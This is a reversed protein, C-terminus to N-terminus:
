AGLLLLTRIVPHVQNELIGVWRKAKDKDFPESHNYALWNNGRRDADLIYAMRGPNGWCFQIGEAKVYSGLGSHIESVEGARNICFLRYVRQESM